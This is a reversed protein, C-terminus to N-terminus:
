DLIIQLNIKQSMLKKIFSVNGARGRKSNWSAAKSGVFKIPENIVARPAKAANESSFFRLLASKSVHAQTRLAFIRFFLNFLMLLNNSM